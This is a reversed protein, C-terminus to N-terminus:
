APKVYEPDIEAPKARVVNQADTVTSPEPAPVFMALPPKATSCDLDPLTVVSSIRLQGDALHEMRFMVGSASLDNPVEGTESAWRVVCGRVEATGAAPGPKVTWPSSLIPDLSSTRDDNRTSIM